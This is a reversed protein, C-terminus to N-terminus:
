NRVKYKYFSSSMNKQARDVRDKIQRSWVRCISIETHAEGETDEERFNIFVSSEIAFEVLTEALTSCSRM